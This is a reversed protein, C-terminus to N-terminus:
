NKEKLRIHIPDYGIGGIGILGYVTDGKKLEKDLISYEDLEKYLDINADSAVLMNRGTVAPGILLGVPFVEASNGSGVTLTTACLLLYPLYSAPSQKLMNGAVRPKMVLLQNTGTYFRIDEGINITKDSQNTLKVAIVSVGREHEKNAYKKNGKEYLMNYRYSFEISDQVVPSSYNVSPPHVPKYVSACGATLVAAFFVAAQIITRKM